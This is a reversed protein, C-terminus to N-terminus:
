GKRQHMILYLTAFIIRLDFIFSQRDIYELNLRLKDPLIGGLYVGEVDDSDAMLDGEDRFQLTGLDTVGPRVSLVRLQEPTFHQVHIPIEPRPGVISMDGKLVNFLTPLEDIEFRRLFKGCKTVRHDGKVSIHRQSDADTVMTRFKLITFPMGNLGVRVQSYFIDGPSDIKIALFILPYFPITFMLGLSSVVIDFLRKM